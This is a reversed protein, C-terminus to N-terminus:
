SANPERFSLTREDTREMEVLGTKLLWAIVKAPDLSYTREVVGGRQM